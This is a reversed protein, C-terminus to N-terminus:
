AVLEAVLGTYESETEVGEEGRLHRVFVWFAESWAPGTERPYTPGLGDRIVAVLAEGFRSYHRGDIGDLRHQHRYTLLDAPPTGAIAHRSLDIVFSLLADAVKDPTDSLEPDHASRSLSKSLAQALENKRSEVANISQILHTRVQPSVFNNM